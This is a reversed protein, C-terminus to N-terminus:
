WGQPGANRSSSFSGFGMVTQMEEEQRRREDLDSGDSEASDDCDCHGEMSVAEHKRKNILRLRQQESFDACNQPTLRRLLCGTLGLTPDSSSAEQSGSTCIDGDEVVARFISEELLSRGAGETDDGGKGSAEPPLLNMHERLAVTPHCMVRVSHLGCEGACLLVAM